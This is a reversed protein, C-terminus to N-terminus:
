YARKARYGCKIISTTVAFRAEDRDDKASYQSVEEKSIIGKALASRIADVLKESWTIYAEYHGIVGRSCKRAAKMAKERMEVVLNVLAEVDKKSRVEIHGGEKKIKIFEPRGFERKINRGM